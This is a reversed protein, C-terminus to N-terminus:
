RLGLEKEVRYLDELTVGPLNGDTIEQIFEKYLADVGAGWPRLESLENLQEEM